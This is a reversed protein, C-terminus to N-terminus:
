GPPNRFIEAAARHFGDPLGDAAMTAAIEEMEAVWRWGKGSASRNAHRLREALAPMSRAWEETITDSIGEAEALAATALLLAISGKSWAAYAMKVSSASFPGSTVIRTELPTGEFLKEVAVAGDGSLFLRTTGRAAPPPGVIGGDAYTAGGSTVIAAVASATQPSIANADLYIGDFGSVSRAVDLAAGPPCISLIVTARATLAGITGADTLGAAEARTATERSRDQSAWLVTHGAEVLCRGAVAGMDGPHLV